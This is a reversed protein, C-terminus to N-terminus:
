KKVYYMFVNELSDLFINMYDNYEKITIQFLLDIDEFLNLNKVFTEMVIESLNEDYAFYKAAFIARKAIKFNEETMTDRTNKFYELISNRTKFPYDTCVTLVLLNENLLYTTDISSLLINEDKMKVIEESMNSLYVTKFINFALGMKIREKEEIDNLKIGLQIYNEEGERNAYVKKSLRTEKAKIRNVKPKAVINYKKVLKEIYSFTEGANVNGEIVIAMNNPTYFNEYINYLMEPTAEKITDKTGTISAGYPHNEYMYNIVNKDIKRMDIESKIIGYEKEITEKTFYPRFVIDMLVQLAKKFNINNENEIAEFLYYTRDLATFANAECDLKDFIEMYDKSDIGENYFMLHEIYHAIGEPIEKIDGSIRDVYKSDMGGYKVIINASVKYKKENPIVYIKLGDNLVQKYVKKSVNSNEFKTITSM